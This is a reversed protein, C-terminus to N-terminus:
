RKLFLSQNLQEVAKTNQQIAGVNQEMVKTIERIVQNTEKKDEKQDIGIQGISAQLHELHNSSIKYQSWALFGAVVIGGASTIVVTITKADIKEWLTTM